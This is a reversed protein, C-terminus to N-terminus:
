GIPSSRKTSTDLLQRLRPGAPGSLTVDATWGGWGEGFEIAVVEVVTRSASAAWEDLVEYIRRALDLEDEDPAV